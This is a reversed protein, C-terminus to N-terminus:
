RVSRFILLAGISLTILGALLVILWLEVSHGKIGVFIPSRFLFASVVAIIGCLSFFYGKM